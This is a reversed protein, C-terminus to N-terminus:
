KYKLNKIISNFYTTIKNNNKVNYGQSKNEQCNNQETEQECNNFM